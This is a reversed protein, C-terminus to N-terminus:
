IQYVLSMENVAQALIGIEGRQKLVSESAPSYVNGEALERATNTLSGLPTVIIRNFYFYIILIILVSSTIFVTNFQATSKAVEEDMLGLELDTGLIAVVDGDESLIPAYAYYLEGYDGSYYEVYEMQRKTEYIVELAPEGVNCTGLGDMDPSDYVGYDDADFIFTYLKEGEDSMLGTYALVYVYASRSTERLLRLDETTKWYEETKFVAMDDHFAAMRAM